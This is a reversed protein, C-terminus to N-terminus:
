QDGGEEGAPTDGAAAKEKKAKEAKEKKAKKAAAKREKEREKWADSDANHKERVAPDTTWSTITHVRGDFISGQPCSLAADAPIEGESDPDVACLAGEIKFRKSQKACIKCGTCGVKCVAKTQKSKEPNNCLVQVKQSKGVMKLIDRPCADVCQGCGTCLEPIVVALRKETIVIAGFQCADRCSGLGLCGHACQKLGGAIAHAGACTQVGLYSAREPALGADGACAVLAVDDPMEGVEVGMVQGIEQALDAGGPPCLTPAAKGGVLAAAYGSCGPYGCGGCNAGPLIDMLLEQREDVEVAFAKRGVALLAAMVFGIGSLVAVPVILLTM